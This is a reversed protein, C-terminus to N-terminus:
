SENAALILILGCNFNDLQSNGSINKAFGYDYQKRQDFRLDQKPEIVFIQQSGKLSGM